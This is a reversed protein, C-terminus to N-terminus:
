SLGELAMVVDPTEVAAHRLGILPQYEPSGYWRKLTAMDPFEIIVLRDPNWEGDLAQHTNGKTLYKAGYRELMPAVKGRYEEFRAPDTIKHAVVLYASM